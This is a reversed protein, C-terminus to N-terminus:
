TSEGIVCCSATVFLCAHVYRGTGRVAYPKNMRCGRYSDVIYPNPTNKKETYETNLYYLYYYNFIPRGRKPGKATRNRNLPSRHTVAM